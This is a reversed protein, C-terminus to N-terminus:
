ALASRQNVVQIRGRSIAQLLRNLAYVEEDELGPHRLIAMIGYREAETIKGTNSISAFLESITTPLICLSFM